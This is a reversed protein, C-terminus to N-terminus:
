RTEIGWILLRIALRTIVQGSMADFSDPFDETAM